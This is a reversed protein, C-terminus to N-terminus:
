EKKHIGTVDHVMMMILVLSMVFTFLPDVLDWLTKGSDSKWTDTLLTGAGTLASDVQFVTSTGAIPSSV